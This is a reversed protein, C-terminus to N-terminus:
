LHSKIKIEKNKNRYSWNNFTVFEIRNKWCVYNLSLQDRKSYNRIWFWWEEMLKEIEKEHKRYIINSEYLGINKPFKLKKLEQIQNNIIDNKDKKLEKCVKAEEYICKRVPHIASIFIAQKKNNINEFFKKNKIVINGDIWLSTQYKKGFLKNPFVKHWRANRVQDLEQYKMPYVKWIGKNKKNIIREQNTYCIYDWSDDFYKFNNLNDYEGSICTYIVKERKYNNLHYRKIKIYNLYYYNENIIKNFIKKVFFYIERLYKNKKLKEKMNIKNM